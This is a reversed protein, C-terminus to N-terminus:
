LWKKNYNEREMKFLFQQAYGCYPGFYNVIKEHLIQYQKETITKTEINFQNSYYKELIKIMWTDLPFAELKNLSFLLICDAVKNGVGPILCINKKAEQYDCKELYKFNIKKLVIMKSAQKIFPARYGVGCKKIEEISANALKEPKPFLFFEKNQIKVKKGFKKSIKELSNKIKQINSNSSIIFSIMCQFPDQKFIRLGEYQKISKKVTEDKSISKIIEQMNDNKRFFNTKSNLISKIIGNENIKLIDQGNIGYWDTGNKEWLFVQGSNISNDINISFKDKM